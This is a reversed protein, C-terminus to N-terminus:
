TVDRSWIASVAGSRGARCLRLPLPFGDGDRVGVWEGVPLSELTAVRDWRKLGLNWVYLGPGRSGRAQYLVFFSAAADFPCMHTDNDAVAFPTEAPDGFPVQYTVPRRLPITAVAPPASAAGWSGPTDPTGAPPDPPRRGRRRFM